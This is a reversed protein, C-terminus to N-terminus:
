IDKKKFCRMGCMGLLVAMIGWVGLNWFESWNFSVAMDNEIFWRGCCLWLVAPNMCAFTKIWDARQITLGFWMLGVFGAAICIMSIYSNNVFIHVAGAIVGALLVILFATVINLILEQRITLRVFSIFPYELIGSSEMVMYSSIPVDMLGKMPVYTFFLTLGAVILIVSFVLGNFIGACWKIWMNKRGTSSSFVIDETRNIREFDMLYLVSFCMILMMEIICQSLFKYLKGHIQFSDGPYFDADTDNSAIIEEVRKQLKKYNNDIFEKYSGSPYFKSMDEKMNKIENMNFNIYIDSYDKKYQEYFDYYEGGTKKGTIVDYVAEINERFDSNGVMGYITFVNFSLFLVFIFWIVPFRYLKKQEYIFIRM